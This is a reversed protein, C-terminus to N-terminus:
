ELAAAEKEDKEALDDLGCIRYIKARDLYAEKYDNKLEIAKSLENIAEQYRETAAYVNGLHRHPNAYSDDQIIAFLLDDMAKQYKGLLYYIYGRNNYAYLLKPNLEIAKDYDEIAKTYEKLEDYVFGRAGYAEAFEPNMEIAKNYDSIAKQYEEIVDCNSAIRTYINGRWYYDSAYVGQLEIVKNFCILAEQYNKEKFARRGLRKYDVYTLENEKERKEEDQIEAKNMQEVVKKMDPNEDLKEWQEFYKQVRKDYQNKLYSEIRRPAIEESYMRKGIELMLEDFGGITVFFGEKEKVFSKINKEVMDFDGRYCWYVGHRMSTGKEQLFSMLSHDGGGYGIIVPTYTNFAYNLVERWEDKLNGTAEPSNLPAYMLGRHVKAIIPRQIDSEIYGALSEHSVVLPKKATYLFLADEVLSDFNTTIVLNNLGSQSNLKSTTMMLALTHYGLSPECHEMIKELYRYGNRPNPYFRLKYIDFYYESSISRNEEKAKKWAKEIEDFTHNILKERYLKEAYDRILSTDMAPTGLDEKEGMICDMWRMELTSGSPIGSEVSAGSGLIFCFREGNRNSEMIQQVLQKTSLVRSEPFTM